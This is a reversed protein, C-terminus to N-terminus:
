SRARARAAPVRRARAAPVVSERCASTPSCSPASPARRRSSTPIARSSSACRRARRRRAARRARRGRRAPRRRHQRGVLVPKNTLLFVPGLLAREDATLDSRYIPTGDGLVGRHGSSRPSRPCSRDQRGQRLRQQKDLRQEVSALDALVLEYELTPSTPPRTTATPPGCCSSCPTATACRASCGAASGRARSPPSRRPSCDIEFTAPVVNKSESMAALRDLRDDPLQCSASCGSRPASPTSAPSPPSCCTTSRTPSASSGSTSWSRTLSNPGRSRQDREASSSGSTLLFVFFRLSRARRLLALWPLRGLTPRRQAGVAVPSPVPRRHTGRASPRRHVLLVVALIPVLALSAGISVQDDTDFPEIHRLHYVLHPVSYVLWGGPVARVLPVSLTVLAFSRSWSSCRSTSSASTACSTSTTRATPRSGPAASGPSTTTSRAPARVGGLGRDIRARPRRARACGSGCCRTVCPDAGGARARPERAGLGRAVSPYRPAWGTTERFKRNSVRQSAISRRPPAARRALRLM